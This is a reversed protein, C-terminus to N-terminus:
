SGTGTCCGLSWVVAVEAERVAVLGAAAVVDAAVLAEVRVVGAALSGWGRVPAGCNESGREQVWDALGELMVLLDIQRDASIMATTGMVRGSIKMMEVRGVLSRVWDVSSM